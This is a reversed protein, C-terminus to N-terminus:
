KNSPLMSRLKAVFGRQFCSRIEKPAATSTAPMRRYEGSIPPRKPMRNAMSFNYQWFHPFSYFFKESIPHFNKFKCGSINENKISLCHISLHVVLYSPKNIRIRVLLHFLDKIPWTYSALFGTNMM